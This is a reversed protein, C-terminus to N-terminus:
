QRRPARPDGEHAFRRRRAAEFRPVRANRNISTPRNRSGAFGAVFFVAAFFGGL